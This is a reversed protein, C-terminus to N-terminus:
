NQPARSLLQQFWAILKSVVYCFISRKGLHKRDGDTTVKAQQLAIPLAANRICPPLNYSRTTDGLRLIARLISVHWDTATFEHRCENWLSIWEYVRRVMEEQGTWDSVSISAEITSPLIRHVITSLPTNPWHVPSKPARFPTSNDVTVGLETRLATITTSAQPDTEHDVERLASHPNAFDDRRLSSILCWITVARITQVMGLWVHPMDTHISSLSQSIYARVRGDQSAREIWSLARILLATESINRLLADADSNLSYFLDPNASLKGTISLSTNERALERRAAVRADEYKPWRGATRIRTVTRTSLDRDRWSKPPPTKDKMCDLFSLASKILYMAFSFAVVCAWATLSRYPCRKSLIPLVTFTSIILLFVSTVITVVIAVVDDLTWLLIVIGILFQVMALELLAPISAITATVNWAEWAEIRMQRVLVNERPQALSSSWQLYERLWQKALIGLLAAALSMILSVFFLVNVWRVATSPGSPSALLPAVSRSFSEPSSHSLIASFGSVLLKDTTRPDSSPSLMGYTQVVFASLVASFLGAKGQSTLLM